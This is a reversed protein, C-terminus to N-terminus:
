ITRSNCKTFTPLQVWMISYWSFDDANGHETDDVAVYANATLKGLRAYFITDSILKNAIASQYPDLGRMQLAFAKVICETEDNSLKVDPYDEMREAKVEQEVKRRKSSLPDAQDIQTDSSDSTDELYEVEAQSDSFENNFQQQQFLEYYNIIIYTLFRITWNLM